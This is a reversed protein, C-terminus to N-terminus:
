IETLVSGVVEAGDDRLQKALVAVDSSRSVHAKAVVLAYGIVSSIRLADAVGRAPPTDILTFEFDRLCREILGRFVESGLLEQPNEAAAGAYMVSLNPLVEHHIYDGGRDDAAILCERLGATPVSPRIFTQIGPARLDADILLTAVGVQSLAVALNAATFSCGMNLTAACVSLGRRGDGIHQAMIHTRVTRIAEAEAPRADSLTVLDMSLEYRLEGDMGGAGPLRNETSVAERQVGALNM